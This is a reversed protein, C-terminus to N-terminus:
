CQVLRRGRSIRWVLPRSLDVGVFVSPHHTRAHTRARLVTGIRTGWVHGATARKGVKFFFPFPSFFFSADSSLRLCCNLGPPPTHTAYIDTKGRRRTKRFKAKGARSAGLPPLPRVVCGSVTVVHFPQPPLRWPSLAAVCIVLSCTQSLTLNIRPNSLKTGRARARAFWTAHINPVCSCDILNCFPQSLASYASITVGTPPHCPIFWYLYVCFTFHSLPPSLPLLAAYPVLSRAFRCCPTM